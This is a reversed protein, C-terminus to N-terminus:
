TNLENNLWAAYDRYQIVLPQQQLSMGNVIATYTENIEQMLKHVSWGDAIIHHLVCALTYNSKGERILRLRLLGCDALDFEYNCIEHVLQRTHDAHQSEIDQFFKEMPIDAAIQQYLDEGQLCFGTRLSEHRQVIHQLAAEMKETDIKGQLSWSGSINYATNGGNMQSLVWIRKQSPSVAYQSAEASKAIAAFQHGNNVSILESLLAITPHSFVNAIELKCGFQRHVQLLLQTAKLSHGGLAFFNDQRGIRKRDLVTEWIACLMEEKKNRPAEYAEEGAADPNPLRKRDIKGSSTLPMADLAIFQAPIMYVPLQVRLYQKLENNQATAENWVIYARLVPHGQLEQVLVAAQKVGTFSLIVQEIESLEIRNGFLKVQSDKRGMFELLGSGLWRGADGTRYMKRETEFPDSSFVAATKEPLGIYGQGVGVGSVCIEGPIVPACFRGHKDFVYINLNDIPRGIPIKLSTFGNLQYDTITDSAETPGYTNFLKANPIREMWKEAVSRKLEEGITAVVQLQPFRLEAASTQLVQLLENLYTPVVQMHTIRKSHLSAALLQPDRVVATPFVQVHGGVLLSAFMQWMSIDFTHSAIQAMRTGSDLNFRRIRSYLHNIMGKQEVKVGKPKGTSGSTYIIYSLWADNHTIAVPVANEAEQLESISVAPTNTDFKNAAGEYIFLSAGADDLIYNNREAPHSPDLPLYICGAKWIGLIVAPLYRSRSICTAVISQPNLQQQLHAAIRSSLQDLSAYSFSGDMDSVAPAAPFRGATESFMTCYADHVPYQNEDGRCTQLMQKKAVDTMLQLDKVLLGPKSFCQMLIVQLCNLLQEATDDSFLSADYILRCSFAGPIEYCEFELEAKSSPAAATQLGTIDDLSFLEDNEFRMYNILAKSLLPALNPQDQLLAYYPFSQHDQLNSIQADVRHIIKEIHDSGDIDTVLPLTNMFLGAQRDWAAHHRGTLILGTTIQEQGTFAELLLQISTIVPVSLHVKLSQASKICHKFAVDEIRFSICKGAYSKVAPRAYEVPLHLIEAHQSISQLYQRSADSQSSRLWEQQWWAYDNYEFSSKNIASCNTNNKLSTYVAKIQALILQLSIGDAVLHHVTGALCAAGTSSVFLNLKALIDNELDFVWQREKEIHERVASEFLEERIENVAIDLPMNERIVQWLQRDQEKFNTRLSAHEEMVWTLAIVLLSTDPAAHFHIVGTMNYAACAERSSNCVSWVLQQQGTAPYKDLQPAKTIHVSQKETVAMLAAFKAVTPHKLLSSVALQVACEQEVQSVLQVAKLSHGGHEFFNHHIGIAEKALVKKWI